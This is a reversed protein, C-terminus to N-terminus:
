KGTERSTTFGLRKLASQVDIFYERTNDPNIFVNVKSGVLAKMSSPGSTQFDHVIKTSPEIYRAALHYTTSNKSRTVWFRTAMAPVYYGNSAINKNRKNFAWIGYIALASIAPPVIMAVIGFGIDGTLMGGCGALMGFLGFPIVFICVIIALAATTSDNPNKKNLDVQMESRDHLVNDGALPLHSYIDILYQSPNQPNIYVAIKRKEFPIPQVDISPSVFQRKMGAYEANCRFTYLNGKQEIADLEADIKEGYLILWRNIPTLKGLDAGKNLYVVLAIIGVPFFMPVAIAMVGILGLSGGGLVAGLLTSFFIASFVIAIIALALKDTHLGTKYRGSEIASVLAEREKQSNKM